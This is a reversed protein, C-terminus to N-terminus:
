IKYLADKKVSLLAIMDDDSSGKLDVQPEDAEM